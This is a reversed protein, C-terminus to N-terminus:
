LPRAKAPVMPRTATDEVTTSRVKLPLIWRLFRESFCYLLRLSFRSPAFPRSLARRFRRPKTHEDALSQRWTLRGNYPGYHQDAEHARALATHAPGQRFFQAPCKLIEVLPNFPPLLTLHRFDETLRAFRLKAPRFM